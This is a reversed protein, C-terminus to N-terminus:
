RTEEPGLRLTVGKTKAKKLATSNHLKYAPPDWIQFQNGRGVFLATENINAHELLERPVIVRGETDFALQHSNEIITSAVNDQEESFLELDDLGKIIRLMFAEGCAELAAFKFSPFVFIGSFEQRSFADRFPKPVSVRGKKDIRNNHRGILAVM